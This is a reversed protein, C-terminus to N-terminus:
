CYLQTYDSDQDWAQKIDDAQTNIKLRTNKITSLPTLSHVSSSWSVPHLISVARWAPAIKPKAPKEPKEKEEDKRQSEPRRKLNEKESLEKSPSSAQMQSSSSKKSRLLKSFKAAQLSQKESEKQEEAPCSRGRRGEEEPIRTENRGNPAIRVSRTQNRKKDHCQPPIEKHQTREQYITFIQLSKLETSAKMSAQTNIRTVLCLTQTKRRLSLDSDSEQLEEAYGKKVSIPLM